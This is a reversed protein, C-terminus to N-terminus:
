AGTGPGFNIRPMDACKQAFATFRYLTGSSSRAPYETNSGWALPHQLPKRRPLVFKTLSKKKPAVTFNRRSIQISRIKYDETLWELLFYFFKNIRIWNRKISDFIRRIASAAARAIVARSRVAGSGLFTPSTPSPNSGSPTVEATIRHTPAM